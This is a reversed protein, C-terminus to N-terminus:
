AWGQKKAIIMELDDIKRQYRSNQPDKALLEQFVNIAEDFRGQAIYIEGLTPSLIPPKGTKTQASRDMESGLDLDTKKIETPPTTDDSLDVETEPVEPISTEETPPLEPEAALEQPREILQDPQEGLSTEFDSETPLSDLEPTSESEVPPTEKSEEIFDSVVSSIDMLGEGEVEQEGSLQEPSVDQM